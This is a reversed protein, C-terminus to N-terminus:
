VVQDRHASGGGEAQHHFAPSVKTSEQRDQHTHAHVNASMCRWTKMYTHDAYMCVYMRIYTCVYM